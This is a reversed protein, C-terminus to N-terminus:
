YGAQNMMEPLEYAQPFGLTEADEFAQRAEAFGKLISLALDKGFSAEADRPDIEIMGDYCRLAEKYRGEEPVADGKKVRESSTSALTGSAWAALVVLIGSIVVKCFSASMGLQRERIIDIRSRVM